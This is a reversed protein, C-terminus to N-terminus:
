APSRRPPWPSAHCRSPDPVHRSSHLHPAAVGAHWLPSIHAALKPSVTKPLPLTVLMQPPLCHPPGAAPGKLEGLFSPARRCPAAPTPALCAHALLPLRLIHTQAPTQPALAPATRFPASLHLMSHGRAMAHPQGCARGATPLPPARAPRVPPCPPTRADLRCSGLWHLRPPCHPLCHKRDAASAPQITHPTPPPPSRARRPRGAKGNSAPALHSLAPRHSCALVHLAPASPSGVVVTRGIFTGALAADAARSRLQSRSHSRLSSATLRRQRGGRARGRAGLWGRAM